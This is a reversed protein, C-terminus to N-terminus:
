GHRGYLVTHYVSTILINRNSRKRYKVEKLRGIQRRRPRRATHEPLCHILFAPANDENGCVEQRIQIKSKSPLNFFSDRNYRSRKPYYALLGVDLTDAGGPCAIM